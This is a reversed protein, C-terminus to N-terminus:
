RKEAELILENHFPRRELKRLCPFDSEHWKPWYLSGFGSSLAVTTLKQKDYLYVHGWFRMGENILDCPTEPLWNVDSWIDLKGELYIQAMYRLDPTSIRIRGGPKLVRYCDVLFQLGQDKDIHEFFHETFIFDVTNDAYPLALRLDHIVDAVQSEIDINTWGQFYHPGCALHLKVREIKDIKLM